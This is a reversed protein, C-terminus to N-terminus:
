QDALDNRNNKSYERFSLVFIIRTWDADPYQWKSISNMALMVESQL